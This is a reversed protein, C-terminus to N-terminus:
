KSKTKPITQTIPLGYSSPNRNQAQIEINEGLKMAVPSSALAIYTNLMSHMNIKYQNQLELEISAQNWLDVKTLKNEYNKAM